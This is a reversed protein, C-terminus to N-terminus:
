PVPACPPIKKGIRTSPANVPLIKVFINPGVNGFRAGANMTKPIVPIRAETTLAGIRATIKTKSIVPPAM